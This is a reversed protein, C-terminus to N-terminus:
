LHTSLQGSRRTGYRINREGDAEVLKREESSQGRRSRRETFEALDTDFDSKSGLEITGDLSWICGLRKLIRVEAFHAWLGKLIRVELVRCKFGKLIRM